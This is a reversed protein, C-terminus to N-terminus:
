LESDGEKEIAGASAFHQQFLPKLCLFWETALHQNKSRGVLYALIFLVLLSLMVSEFLYSPPSVPPSSPPPSSPSDSLISPFDFDADDDSLQASSLSFLLLSLTSM